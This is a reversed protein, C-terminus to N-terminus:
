ETPYGEARWNSMHGQLDRLKTFGAKQLMSEAWYARPGQECYVVIQEAKDIPLETLRAALETHPIHVAGPVHGSEYERATRVDLVLPADPNGLQESLNPASISDHKAALPGAVLLGLLAISAIRTALM